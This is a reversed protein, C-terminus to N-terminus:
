GLHSVSEYAPTEQYCSAAPSHVPAAARCQKWGDLLTRLLGEVEVLPPEIQEVNAQTLRRMSYDYLEILNDAIEGGKERDASLALEGLIAMAKGIQRSRTAIDGASLARRAEVISEIAASYLIEVLELADASLIRTELYSDYANGQM